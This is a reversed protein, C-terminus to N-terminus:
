CYTGEEMVYKCIPKHWVTKKIKRSSKEQNKTQIQVYIAKFNLILAQIPIFKQHNEKWVYTLDCYCLYPELFLSMLFMVSDWSIASNLYSWQKFHWEKGLYHQRHCHNKLRTVVGACRLLMACVWIVCCHPEDPHLIPSLLPSPGCSLVVAGTSHSKRM